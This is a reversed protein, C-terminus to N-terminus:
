RITTGLVNVFVTSANVRGAPTTSSIDYFNQMFSLSGSADGLRSRSESDPWQSLDRNIAFYAM